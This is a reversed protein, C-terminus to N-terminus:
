PWPSRYKRALYAAFVLVATALAFQASTWVWEVTSSPMGLPPELQALMGKGGLGHVDTM